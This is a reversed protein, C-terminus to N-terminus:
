TVALSHLMPGFDAQAKPSGASRFILEYTTGARCLFAIVSPDRGTVTDVEILRGAPVAIERLTMPKIGPNAPAFRPDRIMESLREINPAQPTDFAVVGISSGSPGTLFMATHGGLVVAPQVDVDASWGQPLTVTLGRATVTGGGSLVITAAAVALVGNFGFHAAMSCVLGRRVYLWGLLLGLLSYYLLPVVNFSLHWVAFGAASVLLAVATGKARFSELMLGRFLVEEVLPAAACGVLFAAALHPVDGESMMVVMRPDPNLYGAAASVAALVGASLTAGVLLGIVAGSAPSGSTWRLRVSPTIQTVVLVGVVAYVAMTLVAAYRIYSAEDLQTRSLGFSALMALAGVGIAVITLLFARRSVM